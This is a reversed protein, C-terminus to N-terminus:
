SGKKLECKRLCALIKNELKRRSEQLFHFHISFGEYFNSYRDSERLVDIAKQLEEDNM